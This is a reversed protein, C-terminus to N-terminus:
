APKEKTLAKARDLLKRAQRQAAKAAAVVADLRELFPAEKETM